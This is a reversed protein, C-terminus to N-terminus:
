TKIQAIILTSNILLWVKNYIHKNYAHHVVYRILPLWKEWGENNEGNKGGQDHDKRKSM